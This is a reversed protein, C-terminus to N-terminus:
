SLYITSSSLVGHSTLFKQRCNMRLFQHIAKMAGAIRIIQDRSRFVEKPDFFLMKMFIEDIALVIVCPIM